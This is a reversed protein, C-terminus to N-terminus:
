RRAAPAAARAAVKAAAEPSVTTVGRLRVAYGDFHRLDASELADARRRYQAAVQTLTRVFRQTRQVVEAPTGGGLEVVAETDLTARWGGRGSLELEEVAMGMPEFVPQLLRVMALMEASHGQPGKLRPLDEQEVDGPNAEFVEGRSNVMASGTDPGWFAVAEHEQLVVRLSGPYERRVQARRVWPVQEFAARAADLDVTFFNGTLSPAVNARLTVANNHALEGQVVIRHIAFAPHRLVWRTGAALVLLACGMFLATATWNMLKVDLPAPLTPNM